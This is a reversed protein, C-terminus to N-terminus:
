RRNKTPPPLDAGGVRTFKSGFVSSHFPNLRWVCKKANIGEYVNKLMSGAFVNELM